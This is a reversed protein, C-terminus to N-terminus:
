PGQPPESSSTNPNRTLSRLHPVYDVHESGWMSRRASAIPGQSHEHRSSQGVSDQPSTKLGHSLNLTRYPTQADPRNTRGEPKWSGVLGVLGAVEEARCIFGWAAQKLMARALVAGPLFRTTQFPSNVKGAESLIKRSTLPTEM